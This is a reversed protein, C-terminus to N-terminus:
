PSGRTQCPAFGLLAVSQLFETREDGNPPLAGDTLRAM